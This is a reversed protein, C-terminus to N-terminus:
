CALPAIPIETSRSMAAPRCANRGAGRGAQRGTRADLGRQRRRNRWLPWLAPPPGAHGLHHQGQGHRGGRDAQAAVAQRRLPHRKGRRARLQRRRSRGGAACRRIEPQVTQHRRRRAARLERGRLQQAMPHQARDTHLRRDRHLRSDRQAWLHHRRGQDQRRRWSLHPRVAARQARHGRGQRGMHRRRHRSRDTREDAGQRAAPRCQSASVRGRQRHRVLLRRRHLRIRAPPGVAHAPLPGQLFRVSHGASDPRASGAGACLHRYQRHGLHDRGLKAEGPVPHHAWRRQHRDRRIRASQAVRTLTLSPLPRATAIRRSSRASTSTRSHTAASSLSPTTSTPRPTAYAAPRVWRIKRSSM